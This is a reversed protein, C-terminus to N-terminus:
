GDGDDDLASYTPEVDASYAEWKEPSWIELRDFNGVIVVDRELGAFTRMEASLGIRGQKDPVSKESASFFMRRYGRNARSSTPLQAVRRAEVKFVDSPWVYLCDEQGKTVAVGQALQERFRAPLFLRGKDDLKPRHIGIFEYDFEYDTM